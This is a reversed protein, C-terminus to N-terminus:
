SALAPAMLGATRLTPQSHAALKSLCFLAAHASHVHAPARTLMERKNKTALTEEIRDEERLAVLRLADFNLVPDRYAPATGSM